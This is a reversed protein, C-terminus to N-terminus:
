GRHDAAVLDPPPARQPGTITAATQNSGAANGGSSRARRSSLLRRFAASRSTRVGSIRLWACTATEAPERARTVPEVHPARGEVGHPAGHRGEAAIRGHADVAAIGDRAEGQGALGHDAAVPQHRLDRGGGDDGLGQAVGQHPPEGSAIRIVAPGAIDAVARARMEGAEGRASARRMMSDAEGPTVRDSCILQDSPVRFLDTRLRRRMEPYGLRRRALRMRQAILDAYAGTGTMRTGFAADYAKGGRTARVLAMAHQQRGPYHEAFWDTVLADLELPLRLLM